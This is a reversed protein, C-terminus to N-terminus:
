SRRARSTSSQTAWVTEIRAGAFPAVLVFIKPGHGGSNRDAGGRLSRRCRLRRASSRPLNSGRGRSPLSAPVEGLASLAPNEERARAPPSARASYKVKNGMCKRDGGGRLSRSSSSSSQANTPLNRDAGGRLSRRLGYGAVFITRQNRDAGGRLSRGVDVAAPD